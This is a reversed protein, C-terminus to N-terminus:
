SEKYYLRELVEYMRNAADNMRDLAVNSAIDKNFSANNWDQWISGTNNCSLGTAQYLPCDACRKHHLEESIFSTFKKRYIDCLSCGGRGRNPNKPHWKQCAEFLAQKKKITM